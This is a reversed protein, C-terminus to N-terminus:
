AIKNKFSAMGSRYQPQGITYPEYNPYNKCTITKSRTVGDRFSGGDFVLTYKGAPAYGQGVMNRFYDVAEGMSQFYAASRTDFWETNFSFHARWDAMKFRTEENRASNVNIVTPTNTTEM